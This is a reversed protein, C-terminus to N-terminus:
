VTGYLQILIKGATYDGDTAAGNSLYLFQDAAPVSAGGAVVSGVALDGSNIM